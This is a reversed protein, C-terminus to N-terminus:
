RAPWLQAGALYGPGVGADSPFPNTGLTTSGGDAANVSVVLWDGPGGDSATTQTVGVLNGQSDVDFAEPANAIPAGLTSTTPDWPYATDLQIITHHADIYYIGSPYAASTLDLVTQASGDALSVSVVGRGVLPGVGGDTEGADTEGTKCGTELVLLRDNPPDYVMPAAGFVAGYGPLAYGGTGADELAVLSDTTTDIAVLTPHTASCLQTYGDAAVDYRDINALLVYLRQRTADYYGGSMEVYGDGAPQVWSSLDITSAPAGGEAVQSPDIVAILNRNYRLVYAKTGAAIVALPDSYSNAYGADPEYDDLAVSWSSQVVWPQAPDLLGVVDTSQELVWPAAPTISTAGIYDPYTFFGDTTGSEVGFAVLESRSAGNYSLLLRQPIPTTADGGDLGTGADTPTSSDTTSADASAERGGDGGSVAGDVSSAAGAEIPPATSDDGGGCGLLGCASSVLAGVIAIWRKNM